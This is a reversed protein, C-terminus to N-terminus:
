GKLAEVSSIIEIVEKTIAAQRVKNRLLILDGMLEKANDKSSKMAVMRASHESTLSELLMLRFMSSLYVPLLSALVGDGSSELIFHSNKTQPREVHLFKDVVARHKMPNEFVTYAVHLESVKNNLYDAILHDFMKVHFNGSLRGHMGPFVHNISIGKKRFHGAGKRGYVYLRVEQGANKELFREAARILQYNYVGCLGTDASIVLLGLPGKRKSMFPNRLSFEMGAANNFLSRVKEFYNRGMKLPAELSKFKSMSVMEMARTVKWTGEISRIRTKLQRLQQSM